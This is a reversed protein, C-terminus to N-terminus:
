PFRGTRAGTRRALVQGDRDEIRVEDGEWIGRRGAGGYDFFTFKAAHVEARVRGHVLAPRHKAAFLFGNVSLEAEIAELRDWREVGGVADMARSLWPDMAVEMTFTGWRGSTSM